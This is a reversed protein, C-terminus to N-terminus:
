IKEVIESIFRCVRPTAENTVKLVEGHNVEVSHDVDVNASCSNIGDDVGYEGAFRRKKAFFFFKKTGFIILVILPLFILMLASIPPQM